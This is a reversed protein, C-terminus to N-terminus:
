KKEGFSEMFEGTKTLTLGIFGLLLDMFAEGMTKQEPPAAEAQKEPTIVNIIPLGALERRVKDLRQRDTLEWDPQRYRQLVRTPQVAEVPRKIEQEIMTPRLGEMNM